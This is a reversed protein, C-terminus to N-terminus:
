ILFNNFFLISQVKCTENTLFNSFLFDDMLIFEIFSEKEYIFALKIEDIHKYPYGPLYRVEFYCNLEEDIAGENREEEQLFVIEFNETKKFIYIFKYLTVLNFFILTLLINFSGFFLKLTSVRQKGCRFINFSYKM